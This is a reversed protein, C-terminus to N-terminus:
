NSFFAVSNQNLVLTFKKFVLSSWTPGTVRLLEQMVDACGACRDFVAFKLMYEAFDANGWRFTENLIELGNSNAKASDWALSLVKLAGQSRSVQSYNFCENGVLRVALPNNTKFAAGALTAM